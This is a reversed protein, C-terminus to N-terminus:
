LRRSGSERGRWTLSRTTRGLGRAQYSLFVKELFQEAKHCVSKRHKLISYFMAGFVVVFIVCCIVFILTHLDYIERAIITQPSPLNYQASVTVPALSAAAMFRKVWKGMM